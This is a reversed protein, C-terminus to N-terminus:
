GAPPPPPCRRRELPAQAVRQALVGVHEHDALEGVDLGDAVREGGGLGALEHQGRQARDVGHLGDLADDVDEGGVLLRLHPQLEGGRQAADDHLLEHGGEVAAHREGDLHQQGRGLHELADARPSWALRTLAITPPTDLPIPVM